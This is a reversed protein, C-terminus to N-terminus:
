SLRQGSRAVIRTFDSMMESCGDGGLLAACTLAWFVLASPDEETFAQVIRWGLQRVAKGLPMQKLRALECEMPERERDPDPNFESDFVDALAKQGKSIPSM